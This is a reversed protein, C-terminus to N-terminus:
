VKILTNGSFVSCYNCTIFLQLRSVGEEGGILHLEDVIFLNM